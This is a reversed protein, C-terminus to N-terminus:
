ESCDFKFNSLGYAKANKYNFHWWESRIPTFGEKAMADRLKKRNDLVNDPLKTYSPHAEVGFHDFDTGMEVIEGNLTELTLDVAGGKNHVSGRKYPNAVYKGNPFIKWMKKQIDVPRYCDFLRLRYGERKISKNVRILAKAVEERLVCDVCDYVQEKLFNNKTAYRFDFAIDHQFNNLSVFCTDCETVSKSDNHEIAKPSFSIIGLFSILIIFYKM